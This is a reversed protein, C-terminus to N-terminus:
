STKEIKLLIIQRIRNGPYLKCYVKALLLLIAKKDSTLHDIKRIDGQALYYSDRTWCLVNCTDPIHEGEVVQGVPADCRCGPFTSTPPNPLWM